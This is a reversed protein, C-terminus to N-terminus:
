MKLARRCIRVIVLKQNEQWYMKVVDVLIGVLLNLLSVSLDITVGATAAAALNSSKEREFVMDALDPFLGRMLLIMIAQVSSFYLYELETDGKVCLRFALALVYILCFVIVVTVFVSRLAVTCSKMLILVEPFQGLVKAIRFMRSIRLVRVIKTFSASKLSVDVVSGSLHIIAVMVWTEAAMLTGLITDIIFWAHRFANETERLSYLRSLLELVFFVCFINDGIRFLPSVEVPSPANNYDTDIVIWLANAVTMVYTIVEFMAPGLSNQSSMEFNELQILPSGCGQDHFKQYCRAISSREVSTNAGSYSLPHSWAVTINVYVDVHVNINKQKIKCLFDRVSALGFESLRSSTSAVHLSHKVALWFEFWAQRPM